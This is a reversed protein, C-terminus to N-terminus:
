RTSPQHCIKLGAYLTSWRVKLAFFQGFNKSKCAPIYPLDMNKNLFVLLEAHDAATALAVQQDSARNGFIITRVSSFYGTSERM